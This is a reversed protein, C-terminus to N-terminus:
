IDRYLQKPPLPTKEFRPAAKEAKVPSPIPRKDPKIGLSFKAQADGKAKRAMEKATKIKHPDVLAPRLNSERNQGGAHLPIVHELQWPEGLAIKRGSIHCIGEANRFIRLRVHDPVKSDDNKGIWEQVARSM